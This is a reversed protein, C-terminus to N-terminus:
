SGSNPFSKGLLRVIGIYHELYETTDDAIKKGEYKEFLQAYVKQEAPELQDRINNQEGIFILQRAATNDENKLFYHMGLRFDKLNFEGFNERTVTFPYFDYEDLNRGFKRRLEKYNGWLFGMVLSVVSVILSAIVKGSLESQFDKTM